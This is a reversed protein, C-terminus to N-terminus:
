SAHDADKEGYYEKGRLNHHACAPSDAPQDFLLPQRDLGNKLISKVSKYSYAQIALARSCAMEVREPGYPKTLRMIGLASRFGQEPHPRTEMIRKVLMETHLGNKSAWNLIRTPTWELYRRHSKPM